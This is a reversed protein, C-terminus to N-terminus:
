RSARLANPHSAKLLNLAIDRMEIKDEESYAIKMGNNFSAGRVGLTKLEQIADIGKLKLRQIKAAILEGNEIVIQCAKNNNTSIFVVGTRGKACPEFLNKELINM